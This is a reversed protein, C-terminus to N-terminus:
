KKSTNQSKVDGVQLRSTCYCSFTYATFRRARDPAHTAAKFNVRKPPGLGWKEKAPRMKVLGAFTMIQPPPDPPDRRLPPKSTIKSSTKASESNKINQM